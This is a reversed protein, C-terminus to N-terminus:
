VDASLRQADTMTSRDFARLRQEGSRVLRMEAQRHALTLPEIQREVTDQKAGSFYRVDAASDAHFRMWEDAFSTFFEDISPGATTAPTALLTVAVVAYRLTRATMVDSGHRAAHLPDSKASRIGKGKSASM